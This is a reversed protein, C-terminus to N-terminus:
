HGTLWDIERQFDSVLDQDFDYDNVLRSFHNAFTALYSEPLALCFFEALAHIFNSSLGMQRGLGLKCILLMTIPTM